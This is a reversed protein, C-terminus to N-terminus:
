RVLEPEEVRTWATLLDRAKEYSPLGAADAVDNLLIGVLEDRQGWTINGARAAARINVLIEHAETTLRRINTNM